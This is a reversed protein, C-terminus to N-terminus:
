LKVALLETRRLLQRFRAAVQLGIPPFVFCAAKVRAM